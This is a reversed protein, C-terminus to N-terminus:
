NGTASFTREVKSGSSPLAWALSLSLRHRRDFTSNGKEGKRPDSANQPFPTSTEFPESFDFLNNLFNPGPASPLTLVTPGFVESANDTMHSWTYSGTLAMGNWLGTGRLRKTLSLELAHYNSFAGNSMEIIAGRDQQIRPRLFACPTGPTSFLCGIGTSQPSSVIQWGGYPNLDLRQFLKTGRSGFYSAELSYDRAIQHQLSLSADHVFPNRLNKSVTNENTCDLFTPTVGTSELGSCSRNNIFHGYADSPNFPSSPFINSTKALPNLDTGFSSVFPSITGSQWELLAINFFMPDYYIGYGGRLVTDKGLGWAFGVRPAFNTNIRGLRPPSDSNSASRDKVANFAQGYDEFRLGLNLIFRPSVKIDDEAFYFQAFQQLPLMAGGEGGLNGFRQFGFIPINNVFDQFSVYFYHGLDQNIQRLDSRNELLNGGLKLNHRGKSLSFNEQLQFLNSKVRASQTDSGLSIFNGASSSGASPAPSFLGIKSVSQDTQDTITIEPLERLRPNADL